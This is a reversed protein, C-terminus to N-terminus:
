GSTSYEGGTNYMLYAAKARSHEDGKVMQTVTLSWKPKALM